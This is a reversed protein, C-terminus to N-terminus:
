GGILLLYAPCGAVDCFQLLQKTKMTVLVLIVSYHICVAAREVPILRVMMLLM